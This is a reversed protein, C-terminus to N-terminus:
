RRSTPDRGHDTVRDDLSVGAARHGGPSCRRGAAGEDRRLPARHRAGAPVHDAPRGRRRVEFSMPSRRPSARLRTQGVRHADYYATRDHVGGRGEGREGVKVFTPAVSPSLELTPMAAVDATIRFRADSIYGVVRPFRIEMAARERLPQVLTQPKVDVPGARREGKVPFAQFPIGYVDVYEPVSMDDYSARRLGRGVVQECLLQSSFARLGLIQTVNRADWGESLMQVSVVCRIEAGPQGPQGVTAVTRRLAEAAKQRADAGEAGAEAKALLASDIRLTRVPRM